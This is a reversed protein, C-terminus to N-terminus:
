LQETKASCQKVLTKRANLAAGRISRFYRPLGRHNLHVGDATIFTQWDETMNRHPWFIVNRLGRCVRRLTNNFSPLVQEYNSRRPKLRHYAAVVYVLTTHLLLWNAFEGVDAALFEPDPYERSDIDNAGLDLIIADPKLEEIANIQWKARTVTLGGV